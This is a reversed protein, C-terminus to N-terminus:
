RVGKISFVSEGGPANVKVKDGVQKGVLAKGVPSVNSIKGLRANAEQPGVITWTEEIGDGDIVTVVSGFGVVGTTASHEVVHADELIIEIERIRSDLQILGEKVDEYESNDSVDGDASLEQIQQLLQVRKVTRLHDREHELELKGEPTLLVQPETAM